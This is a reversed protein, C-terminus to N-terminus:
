PLDHLEFGKESLVFALTRLVAQSAWPFKRRGEGGMGWYCGLRLVEQKDEILERPELRVPRRAASPYDNRLMKGDATKGSQFM